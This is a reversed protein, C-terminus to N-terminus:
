LLQSCFGWLFIFFVQEQTETMEANRSREGDDKEDAAPEGGCENRVVVLM